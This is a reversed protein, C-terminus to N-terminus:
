RWRRLLRGWNKRERGLGSRPRRWRRWRAPSAALIPVVADAFRGFCRWSPSRRRFCWTPAPKSMGRCARDRARSRRGGARRDPGHHRVGSRNARRGRGQHPRGDRDERRHGHGAPARVAQGAGSRRYADRRRGFRDAIAGDARHQLRRRIGYGCGGPAAPAHQRRDAARRDVRGRADHDGSRAWWAIGGRRWGSFCLQWAPAVRGDARRVRLHMRRGAVAARGEGGGPVAGGGVGREHGSWVVVRSGGGVAPDCGESGTRWRFVIFPTPLREM